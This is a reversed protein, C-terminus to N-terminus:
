YLHDWGYDDPRKPRKEIWKKKRAYAKFKPISLNWIWMQVDNGTNHNMKAPVVILPGCQLKRIATALRKGVKRKDNDTFVIAALTWEMEDLEEAWCKIIAQPGNSFDNIYDEELYGCCVMRNLPMKKRRCEHRGNNELDCECDPFACVNPDCKPCTGEGYRPPIGAGCYRCFDSKPQAIM